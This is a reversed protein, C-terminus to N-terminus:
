VSSLGIPEESISEESASEESTSETVHLCKLQELIESLRDVPINDICYMSEWKWENVNLL